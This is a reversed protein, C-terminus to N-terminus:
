AVIGDANAAIGLGCRLRVTSGECDLEGAVRLRPM